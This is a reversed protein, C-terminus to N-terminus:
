PMHTKSWNKIKMILEGWGCGKWVHNGPSWSSYWIQTKQMVGHCSERAALHHRGRGPDSSKFFFHKKRPPQVERFDTAHKSAPPVEQRSVRSTWLSGFLCKKKEPLIGMAWEQNTGSKFWVVQMFSDFTITHPLPDQHCNLCRWTEPPVKLRSTVKRSSACVVRLEIEERCETRLFSIFM